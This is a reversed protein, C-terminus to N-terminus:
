EDMRFIYTRKEPPAFYFTYDATIHAQAIAPFVLKKLRELICSTLDKKKITDTIIKIGSPKQESTIQISVGVQGKLDPHASLMNEYCGQILPFKRKIFSKVIEIDLKSFNQNTALDSQVVTSAIIEKSQFRVDTNKTRTPLLVTKQGDYKLDVKKNQLYTQLNSPLLLQDIKTISPIPQKYSPKYLNSKKYTITQVCLQAMSQISKLTSQLLVACAEQSQQSPFEILSMLVRKQVITSPDVIGKIIIPELTQDDLLSLIWFSLARQEEYPSSLAEISWLDKDFINRHNWVIKKIESTETTTMLHQFTLYLVSKISRIDPIQALADLISLRVAENNEDEFAKELYTAITGNGIKGLEQAAAIRVKFNSSSVLEDVLFRVRDTSGWLTQSILFFFLFATSTFLKNM